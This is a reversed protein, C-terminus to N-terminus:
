EAALGVTTPKVATAKATMSPRPTLVAIQHPSAPMGGYTLTPTASQEQVDQAGVVAVQHRTIPFGTLEYTPLEGAWAGSGLSAAAIGAMLLMKKMAIERQFKIAIERQFLSM